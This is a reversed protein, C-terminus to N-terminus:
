RILHVGKKKAISTESNTAGMRARRCRPPPRDTLRHRHASPLVEQGMSCEVKSSIGDKKDATRCGSASFASSHSAYHITLNMGHRLGVACKTKVEVDGISFFGFSSFDETWKFKILLLEKYTAKIAAKLYVKSFHPSFFVDFM